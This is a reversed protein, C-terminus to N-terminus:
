VKTIFQRIALAIDEVKDMHCHHNGAVDIKTLNKYDAKFKHYNKQMSQYGNNALCMLTPAQINEIINQAQHESLRLPSRSLLRKDSSWQWGDDVEIVSRKVLLKAAEQNLEGSMMRAKIASQLSFTKSQRPDISRSDLAQRLQKANSNPEQTVLGAADILVLKSVLEPYM